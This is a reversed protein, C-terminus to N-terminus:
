RARSCGVSALTGLYEGEMGEILGAVLGPVDHGDSRTGDGQGHRSVKDGEVSALTGAM